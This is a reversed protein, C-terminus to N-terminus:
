TVESVVLAALLAPETAELLVVLEALLALGVPALLVVLEELLVPCALLTPVDPVPTVGGDPPDPLGDDGGDLEVKALLKCLYRSRIIWSAVAAVGGLFGATM